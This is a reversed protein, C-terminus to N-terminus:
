RVKTAVIVSSCGSTAHSSSGACKYAADSSVNAIWSTELSAYNGNPTTFRTFAVNNNNGDKIFIERNVNTVNSITSFTFRATIIWVGKSLTVSAGITPTDINAATSLGTKNDSVVKGIGIKDLINEIGREDIGVIGKKLALIREMLEDYEDDSLGDSFIHKTHEDITITAIELGDGVKQDWEVDSSGGGGGGLKDIM